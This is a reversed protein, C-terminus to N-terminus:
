KGNSVRANVRGCVAQFHTVASAVPNKATKLYCNGEWGWTFHTCKSDAICLGGCDESRSKVHRIDNGFFDCGRAWKVKGGDGDQWHFDSNRRTIYGCRARGVPFIEASKPATKLYCLGGDGYTFHTCRSDAVCLGGCEEAVGKVQRFDNGSFDCGQAWKVQGNVGDRWDYNSYPNSDDNPNCDYM